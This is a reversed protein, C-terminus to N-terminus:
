EDHRAFRKFKMKSNNTLKKGEVHRIEKTLRDGIHAEFSKELIGNKCLKGMAKELANRTSSYPTLSAFKKCEATSMGSVALDLLNNNTQAWIRANMEIFTKFYCSIHRGLEDVVDKGSEVYEGVYLLESPEDCAFSITRCQASSITAAYSSLRNTCKVYQALSIKKMM